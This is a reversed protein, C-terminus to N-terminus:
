RWCNPKFLFFIERRKLVFKFILVVIYYALRSSSSFYPFLILFPLITQIVEEVRLRSNLRNSKLGRSLDFSEPEEKSSTIRTSSSSSSARASLTSLAVRKRKRKRKRKKRRSISSKRLVRNVGAQRPYEDDNPRPGVLGAM